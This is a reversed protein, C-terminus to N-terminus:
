YQKNELIMGINDIVHNADVERYKVESKVTQSTISPGDKAEKESSGVELEFDFDLSELSRNITAENIVKCDVLMTSSDFDGLGEITCKSEDLLNGDADLLSNLIYVDQEFELKPKPLVVGYYLSIEDSYDLLILYFEVTNHFGMLEYGDLSSIKDELHLEISFDDKDDDVTIRDYILQSDENEYAFYASKIKGQKKECSITLDDNEISYDKIEVVLSRNTKEEKQGYFEVVLTGLSICMAIISIILGIYDLVSFKKDSTKKTLVNMSENIGDISKSMRDVSKKMSDTNNNLNSLDVKNNGLVSISNQINKLASVIGKDVKRQDVVSKDINSKDTNKKNLM